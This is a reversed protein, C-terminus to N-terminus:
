EEVESAPIHSWKWLGWVGEGLSEFRPDNSMHDVITNLPNDGVVQLDSNALFDYLTRLHMPQEAKALCQYLANSLGRVNSREEGAEEEGAGEYNTAMLHQITRQLARITLDLEDRQEILRGLEAGIEGVIDSSSM